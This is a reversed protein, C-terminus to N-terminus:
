TTVAPEYVANFWGAVTAANAVDESEDVSVKWLHKGSLAKERPFITGEISPTSFTISSGKTAVNETPIGFKVRYLWVYKYKGDSKKARFGVAVYPATDEASSILAGNEDVRAGTLASAVTSDLNTTSLKLTGTSFEHVSEAIADDGYLQGDSYSVSIEASIAKGIFAPTGYTEGAPGDTIIAYYLKDMGITAM